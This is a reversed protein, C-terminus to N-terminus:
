MYDQLDELPADFDDAMTFMGKMTGAQRYKQPPTEPSSTQVYRSALYEAYNLIEAQITPSLKDLTAILQPSVM